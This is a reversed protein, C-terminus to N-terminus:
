AASSALVALRQLIEDGHKTFTDVHGLGSYFTAECGPITDALYHALAAPALNDSEGHWVFVKGLAKKLEIGWPNLVPRFDYALGHRGQAISERQDRSIVSFVQPSIDPSPSTGAEVHKEMSPLSSRILRALVASGIFPSFRGLKFMIRNAAIMGNMGNPLWTPGIASVLGTAILRDSLRASCALAAPGGGSVGITVFHALRLTDALQRIDEPYEILTGGPLPSSRGCGPREPAIIRLHWHQAREDFVAALIRSGPMGHLVILPAGEPDGYEAYSLRRGDRLTISRADTIVDM